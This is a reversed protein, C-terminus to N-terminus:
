YFVPYTSTFYEKFNDSLLTTMSRSDFALISCFNSGSLELFSKYFVSPNPQERVLVSISDTTPAYYISKFLLLQRLSIIEIKLAYLNQYKTM